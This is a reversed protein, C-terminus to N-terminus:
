FKDCGVECEKYPVGRVFMLGGATAHSISALYVRTSNECFIKNATMRVTHKAAADVEPAHHVTMRFQLIGMSFQGRMSHCLFLPFPTDMSFEPMAFTRSSSSSETETLSMLVDEPKDGKVLDVRTLSNRPCNEIVCQIDAMADANPMQVYHHPPQMDFTMSWPAVVMNDHIDIGM